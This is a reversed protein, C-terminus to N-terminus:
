DRETVRESDRLAEEEGEVRATTMEEMVVTKFRLM